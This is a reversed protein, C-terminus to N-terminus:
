LQVFSWKSNPWFWILCDGWWILCRVSFIAGASFFAVWVLNWTGSLGSFSESFRDSFSTRFM